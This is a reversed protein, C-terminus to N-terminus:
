GLGAMDMGMSISGSSSFFLLLLTEVGIRMLGRGEATERMREGEAGRLRESESESGCKGEFGLMLWLLFSLHLLHNYDWFKLRGLFKAASEKKHRGLFKAVSERKPM